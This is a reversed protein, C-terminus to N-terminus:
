SESRVLSKEPEATASHNEPHPAAPATSEVLAEVVGRCDGCGTSARTTASVEAATRCGDRVAERIRGATVSDWGKSSPLTPRSAMAM